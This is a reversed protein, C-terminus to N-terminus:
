GRRRARAARAVGQHPAGRRPRRPDVPGPVRAAHPDAPRGRHRDRRRRRVASARGGGRRAAEAKGHGYPYDADAPRTALRLGFAHALARPTVTLEAQDGRARGLNADFVNGNAERPMQFSGARLTLSLTVWAVAVGNTYGRTDAAFNWATNQFLGWNMFQQRTTNAYRNLDFLDSAALKGATVELRRAPVPGSLQDPARPATDAAGPRGLRHVLRLYTRALSPGNGLDASGQRIVDGNTLGALGVTRSV